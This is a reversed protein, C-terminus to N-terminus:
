PQQTHLKRGRQGLRRCSMPDIQPPCRPGEYELFQLAAAVRRCSPQEVKLPDFARRVAHAFEAIQRHEAADASLWKWARSELRHLAWGAIVRSECARVSDVSGCDRYEEEECALELLTRLNPDLDLASAVWRLDPDARTPPDGRSVPTCAFCGAVISFWLRRVM